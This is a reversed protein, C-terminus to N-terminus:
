LYKHHLHVTEPKRKFSYSEGLKGLFCKISDIHVLIDKSSRILQSIQFSLTGMPFMNKSTKNNGFKNTCNCKQMQQKTTNPFKNNGNSTCEYQLHPRRCKYCPDTKKVAKIENIGSADPM